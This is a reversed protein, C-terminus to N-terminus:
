GDVGYKWYFADNTYKVMNGKIAMDEYILSADTSGVSESDKIIQEATVESGDENFFKGTWNMTYNYGEAWSYIKNSLEKSSMTHITFQKQVSIDGNTKSTAKVIFTGDKEGAMITGDESITALDNSVSWTVNEPGTLKLTQNPHLTTNELSIEALDVFAPKEEDGLNTVPSLNPQETKEGCSTICLTGLTVLAQFVFLKLKNM